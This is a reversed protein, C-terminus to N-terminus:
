KLLAVIEGYCFEKKKASNYGKSEIELVVWTGSKLDPDNGDQIANYGDVTQGKPLEMYLGYPRKFIEVNHTVSASWTRKKGTAGDMQEGGDRAASSRYEAPVLMAKRKVMEAGLESVKLEPLKLM